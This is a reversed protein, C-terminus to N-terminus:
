APRASVVRAGSLARMGAATQLRLAGDNELGRAVGTVVRGDALRVRLRAGAHAHMSEWEARLPELGRAEFLTLADLVSRAVAGVLGNRDVAIYTELAAVPRRLRSALEADHRCNIGIGIVALVGHAHSRTQVLIGGLKAAGVVLDNPWKLAVQAAGLARLTRAVSVGTALSLAGLERVPRQVRKALSFTVGKGGASRWRRGRRGRGATQEEAALLVDACGEALLVENTSTCRGLVRVQMGPVDIAAADLAEM